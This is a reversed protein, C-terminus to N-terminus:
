KEKERKRIKILTEAYYTWFFIRSRFKSTLFIRSRLFIHVVEYSKSRILAIQAGVNVLGINARAINEHDFFHTKM